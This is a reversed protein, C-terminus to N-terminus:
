GREEWTKIIAKCRTEASAIVLLDLSEGTLVEDVNLNNRYERLMGMEVLKLEVERVLNLDSTYDPIPKYISSNEKSIFPHKFWHYQKARSPTIEYYSEIETPGRLGDHKAYRETVIYGMIEAMARNLEDKLADKVSM